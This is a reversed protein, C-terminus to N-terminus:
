SMLCRRLALSWAGLRQDREKPSMKPTFECEIEHLAQLDQQSSWLGIGLGALYAAGLVTTEVMQPRVLKFGCLDSQFQMLLHNQSAGGDVFCQRFLKGFDKQMAQFLEFVEFAIGELAARAIHGRSTSRDFGSLMGRAQANWHPAGLGTLAPVLYVGGHDNVSRALAEIESSHSILKLGDRLWQIVSGANFASGELAYSRQGKISWAVTTLLGQSSKILQNGTNVLAFAGTGYTCKSQGPEFCTQGFLAAQQDGAVGSIPIGDPLPDWSKTMGFRDVSECLEPLDQRSIGFLELLETDWELTNINLLMTRSANSVDTRFSEFGTLHFMLFSDITGMCLRGEDSAQSIHPVHDMLWKMKSASFYPDLTLGTKERMWADLGQRRLEQCERSTRRCQWVIARHYPNGTKKDWAVVTERQNTIGLGAISKPDIGSTSLVQEISKTVSQLIELPDHEVWGSSPFYQQFETNSKAVLRAQDDLIMATSGTTGQDISLM